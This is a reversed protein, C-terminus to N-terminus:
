EAVPRYSLPARCALAAEAQLVASAADEALRDFGADLLLRANESALSGGGLLVASRNCSTRRVRAVIASLDPLLAGSHVSLGIVDYRSSRALRLIESGDGVGCCDVTWGAHRFREEVMALGFSHQNGPAPALLVCRTRDPSPVTSKDMVLGMFLRELRAVAITVALFDCEDSLWLEGLLRAAPALYTDEFRHLDGAEALGAEALTRFRDASSDLLAEVFVALFLAPSRAEARRHRKAPDPRIEAASGVPAGAPAVGIASCSGGSERTEERRSPYSGEAFCPPPASSPGPQRSGDQSNRFSVM